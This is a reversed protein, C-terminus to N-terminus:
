WRARRPPAPGPAAPARAGRAGAAPAYRGAPAAGKRLAPRAQPFEEFCEVTFRDGYSPELLGELFGCHGGHASRTVRLLPTPALRALDAAPIIPDDDAALIRAPVALTLLRAGTIAYGDLYCAIDPFDTNDRVLVDTMHRLQPTSLFGSFDYEGPWCRQKRRLSRYWRRVFYGHYLEWGSELARLTHEPDLVPSLAVVGAVTQPLAPEACARLLFNGGLSFGALYLPTAGCRAALARLAGSVDDLRCSHFLGRNLAHTGHHDRLVLRVVDYGAAHLLAGLSLVYCSDARGEWGHLLVATRGRRQAAATHWAQLRVGAGCDLQWPTAGSLLARARWSTWYRRPPLSPLISQLHANRLWRPPHFSASNAEPRDGM